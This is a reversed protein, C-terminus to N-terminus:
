NKVFKNNRQRFFIFAAQKPWKKTEMEILDRHVHILIQKKKNKTWKIILGAVSTLIPLLPFM